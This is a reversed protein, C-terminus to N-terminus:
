TIITDSKEGQHLIKGAKESPTATDDLYIHERTLPLSNNLGRSFTIQYLDLSGHSFNVSSGTLYLRWCRLFRECEAPDSAAFLARIRPLNNEFRALWQELTLHYHYRLNELDLLRLDQQGCVRCIDYLQPLEGGPFIYTTIWSDTPTGDNKGITHLLGVGGPKLLSAAKRFFAPYYKHGVHEFMGVSVFKDFTGEAERYDKFHFTIRDAVGAKEAWSCAYEFQNKSLTYGTGSIGYNLAAYILMGGWGCGVDILREGPKLILKRCLHEYKDSQAQELSNDPNRFYACSYAMSRDLWLQYFDNGRDYHHAIAKHAGDVSNYNFFLGALPLLRGLAPAQCSSFVPHLSMKVIQRLDGEVEIEGTMYAEGFGLSGRFIAQQAAKRTKFHLTCSPEASGPPAGSPMLTEHSGDWFIIELPATTCQRGYDILQHKLSRANDM